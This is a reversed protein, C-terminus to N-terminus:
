RSPSLHSYAAQPTDPAPNPHFAGGPRKIREKGQLSPTVLINKMESRSPFNFATKNLKVEENVAYLIYEDAFLWNTKGVRPVSNNHEKVRPM